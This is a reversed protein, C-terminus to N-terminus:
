SVRTYVGNKYLLVQQRLRPDFSIHVWTKEGRYEEIVQDFKIDSEIIIRVVEAIPLRSVQIDAAHGYLHASTKTGGVKDNVEKCRFGSTVKIRRNGVAVRVKELNLALKVLNKYEEANPTNEIGTDTVTLEKLTFNTTLNM